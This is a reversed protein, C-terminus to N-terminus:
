PQPSLLSQKESTHLLIECLQTAPHLPVLTISILMSNRVMKFISNKQNQTLKTKQLDTDSKWLERTTLTRKALQWYSKLTDM